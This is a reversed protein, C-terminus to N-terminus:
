GIVITTVVVFQEMLDLAKGTDLSAQFGPSTLNFLKVIGEHGNLVKRKFAQFIGLWNYKNVLDKRLPGAQKTVTHVFSAM